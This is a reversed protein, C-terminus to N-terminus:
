NSTSNNKRGTLYSKIIFLILVIIVSLIVQYLISPIAVLVTTKVANRIFMLPLIIGSVSLIVIVNDTFVFEAATEAAAFSGMYLGVLVGVLALVGLALNGLSFINYDYEFRVYQWLAYGGYGIAALIALSGIVIAAEM